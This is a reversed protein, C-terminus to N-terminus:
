YVIETNEKAYRRLETVMLGALANWNMFGLNIGSEGTEPNYYEHMAGNERIDRCLNGLINEAIRKAEDIYGYNLLGKFVIYTSIIWIPGQWNSPNSTEETSYVPENKAMTRIGYESWFEDRNLLHKKVLLEAYQKPAIKAYMPVFSTWTKFKLPVDWTIKQNNVKPDKSMADLHYYIEDIPDWMHNNIKEALRCAKDYFIKGENVKGIEDAISSMSSYELFMFCNLEVAMSSNLPRGYVAPHNDTGSGRQSRWVFLGINTMQTDEWHQIHRKLAPYIDEYLSVDKKKEYVLKAMQALLPKISNLDSKADRPKKDLVPLAYSFEKEEGVNIMYPISGDDAQNDIFNRICGELYDATDEYVDMLAMGCFFSDWDWLQGRYDAAPDLFKHKLAGIPENMSSRWNAKIYDRIVKDLEILEKVTM